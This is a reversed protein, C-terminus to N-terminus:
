RIEAPFFQRLKEFAEDIGNFNSEGFRYNYNALNRGCYKSLERIYIASDM